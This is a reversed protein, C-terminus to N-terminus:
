DYFISIPLKVEPINILLVFIERGSTQDPYSAPTVTIKRKKSETVYADLQGGADKTLLFPDISFEFLYKEVEVGFNPEGLVEGRNTFLTMKIQQVTSELEDNIELQDPVYAPDETPRLYFERLYAM